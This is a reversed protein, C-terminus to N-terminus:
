GPWLPVARTCSVFPRTCVEWLRILMMIAYRSRSASNCTDQSACSFYTICAHDYLSCWLRASWCAFCGGITLAILSKNIHMCEFAFIRLRVSHGVTWMLVCVCKEAWISYVSSLVKTGLCSKIIREDKKKMCGDNATKRRKGRHSFLTKTLRSRTSM